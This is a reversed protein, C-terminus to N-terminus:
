HAIEHHDYAERMRRLQNVDYSLADRDEVRLHNNDLVHQVSSVANDLEGKDFKGNNWKMSFDRLQKEADNLRKRDNAGPRWNGYAHNLDAHVRDVLNSVTQPDYKVDEFQAQASLTMLLAAGTLVIMRLPKM